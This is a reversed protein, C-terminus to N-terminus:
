QDPDNFEPPRKDFFARVAETQNPSGILSGIVNRETEFAQALDLQDIENFMAKAGQIAHPNKAAIDEALALADERPTDSLRTALGLEKAEVGGVMRGTWALEKAVDMGVLRSLSVTGTMDPTLGWRIELISLQADPAMIRIDAGLAVQAGAGLAHGHIAAIVPVPIENWTWAAQQGLHTIRGDTDFITGKKQGSGREKDDDRDSMGQFASFDMGACFGRGEGSLVVARLSPEAALREGTEAVAKFMKTDFANMKEPRNLRVDAVGNENMTVMVRESM